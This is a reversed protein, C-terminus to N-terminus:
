GNGFTTELSNILNHYLGWSITQDSITVTLFDKVDAFYKIRIERLFMIMFLLMKPDVFKDVSFQLVASFLVGKPITNGGLIVRFYFNLQTWNVFNYKESIWKMSYMWKEYEAYSLSGYRWCEFIWRFHLVGLFYLMQNFIWNHRISQMSCFQMKWLNM